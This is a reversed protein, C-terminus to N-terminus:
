EDLSNKKLNFIFLERVVNLFIVRTKRFFMWVIVSGLVQALLTIVAAGYVGYRPLFIYNLIFSISFTVINVVLLQKSFGHISSINSFLVGFFSIIVGPLLILLIISEQLYDTLIKTKIIVAFFLYVSVLFILGFLFWTRLYKSISKETFDLKELSSNYKSILMSAFIMQFIFAGEYFRYSFSYIGLKEYDFFKAILYHDLKGTAYVLLGNIFFPLVYLFVEKIRKKNINELKIRGKQYVLFLFLGVSFDLPSVLLLFYYLEQKLFYSLILKILISLASVCIIVKNTLNYDKVIFYISEWPDFFLISLFITSVLWFKFDFVFFTPIVVALLFTLQIILFNPFMKEIEKKFKLVFVQHSYRVFVGLFLIIAYWYIFEGLDNDSTIFKLLLITILASFTRLGRALFFNM